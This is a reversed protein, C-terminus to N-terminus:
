APFMDHFFGQMSAWSLKEARANYASGKSPDNGNKTETFGHVVGGYLELEFDVKADRMEKIFAQVEAQDAVPDDAGHIVLVRGKIDHAEGPNPTDLSGHLRGHRVLPAGM